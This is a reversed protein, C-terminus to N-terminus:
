TREYCYWRQEAKLAYTAFLETDQPGQSRTVVKGHELMADPVTTCRPAAITSPDTKVRWCKSWLLQLYARLLFVLLLIVTVSCAVITILRL